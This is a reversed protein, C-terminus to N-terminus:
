KVMQGQLNFIENGRKILIQGDEGVFKEAKVDAAKANEIATPQNFRFSIRRPAPSSPTAIIELYAKNAPMVSGTYQYLATGEGDVHRLCYITGSRSEWASSPKLINDYSDSGNGVTFVYTQSAEGKVIVGENAKVYDKQTLALEEGNLAGEYITLGAPALLDIDSSYSAWGDENTTVSYVVPAPFGITLQNNVFSWTFTYEGAQDIEFYMNGALQNNIWDASTEDRSFESENSRWESGVLVKFNYWKGKDSATFNYSGTATLEDAAPTLVVDYGGGYFDGTGKVTVAPLAPYEITITNTAYAWIFYYVGKADMWFTMNESNVVNAESLYDRKLASNNGYWNAGENVQFTYYGEGKASLDLTAKGTGDGQPVFDIAVAWDDWSGKLQVQEYDIIFRNSIVSNAAATFSYEVSTSTFVTEVDEQLDYLKLARSGPAMGLLKIKYSTETENTEVTLSTNTLTSTGLQALNGLAADTVYINVSTPNAHNIVKTASQDVDSPAYSDDELLLVNDTAGSTVAQLQFNAGSTMAASVYASVALFMIIFLNKKM